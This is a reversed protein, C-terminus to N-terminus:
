PIPLRFGDRLTEGRLELDPIKYPSAPLSADWLQTNTVPNTYVKLGSKTLYQVLAPRPIKPFGIGEAKFQGYGYVLVVSAAIISLLLVSYAIGRLALPRVMWILIVALWLSVIWFVAGAFRPDPASFFWFLGSLISPILVFWMRGDPVSQKMIRLVIFGIVCAILLAIAAYAPIVFLYQNFTERLHFLWNPLWKWGNHLTVEMDVSPDRAFAYVWNEAEYRVSEPIRYDVPLAGIRSPFLLYGSSIAGNALWGGAVVIGTVVAMLVVQRLAPVFETRREWLWVGIMILVSVVAFVVFSLKATTGVTAIAFISFLMFRKERETVQPDPDTPAFLYKAMALTLPIQFIFVGLDPSPSSINGSFKQRFARYVTVPLFLASLAHHPAFCSGSKRIDRVATIVYALMQAVTILVLFSNGVKMGNNFFPYINLAAVFLFTSQNFALRYHLNGLGFVAPYENAWRIVAFHYFATDFETQADIARNSLWFAFPILLVAFALAILGNQRTFLTSHYRLITARLSIVFATLGIAALLATLRWDVAMTIHAYELLGIMVAYGVWVAEFWSVINGAELGFMRRIIQGVGAFVCFLILWLAIVTFMANLMPASPM